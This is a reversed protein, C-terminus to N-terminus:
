RMSSFSQQGAQTLAWFPPVITETAFRTAFESDSVKIKQKLKITVM